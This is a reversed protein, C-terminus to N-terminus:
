SGIYGGAYQLLTYAWGVGLLATAYPYLIKKDRLYGYLMFQVPFAVLVYRDFGGYQRGVLPIALFLLSYIAFSLRRKWWYVAALIILAIFILNTLTATTLLNVFGHKVWDHYTKQSDIFALPNHYRILLYSMYSVLGLSGIIITAVVKSLKVKEELLILAVLIVVFIGTIHTASCLLALLATWLYRKQLAFYISGLALFAFLSESFPTILFVGTPFLVFFILARLPEFRDTVKFLRRIIKIYFYLAGVLSAWAVLFGSLLASPSLYDLAHITLPYLPFWGVWFLSSYGHRAISIYDVADWNAMDSLPNHPEVIYHYGPLAYETITKNNAWGLFLGALIIVITVALALWLDRPKKLKDIFKLATSHVNHM